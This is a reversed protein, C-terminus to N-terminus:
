LYKTKYKGPLVHFVNLHKMGWCLEGSVRAQVQNSYYCCCYGWFFENESCRASYHWQPFRICCISQMLPSNTFYNPQNVHFLCGRTQYKYFQNLYHVLYLPAEWFLQRSGLVRRTASHLSRIMWLSFHTSPETKTINEPSASLSARTKLRQM